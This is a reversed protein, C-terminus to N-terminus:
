FQLDRLPLGADQAIALAPLGSTGWSCAVRSKLGRDGRRRSEAWHQRHQTTTVATTLEGGTSTRCGTM